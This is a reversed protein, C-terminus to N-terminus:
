WCWVADLVKRADNSKWFLTWYLLNLRMFIQLLLLHHLLLASLIV